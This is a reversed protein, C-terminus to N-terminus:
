LVPLPARPPPPRLALSVMYIVVATYLFDMIDGDLYPWTEEVSWMSRAWAQHVFDPHSHIVDLAYNVMFDDYIRTIERQQPESLLRWHDSIYNLQAERDPEPQPEPEPQPPPNQPPAM